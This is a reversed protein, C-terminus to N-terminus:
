NFQPYTNIHHFTLTTIECRFCCSASLLTSVSRVAASSRVLDARSSCTFFSVSSSHSAFLAHVGTLIDCVCLRTRTNILLCEFLAHVGNLIDCVCLRTRTNILLCEFLAYVGNLIDCVCLRTRTNILLCEFLAYVGNLIDRVCQRASNTCM